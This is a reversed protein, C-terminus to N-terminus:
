RQFSWQVISVPCIPNSGFVHERVDVMDIDTRKKLVDLFDKNYGAQELYRRRLVGLLTKNEPFYLPEFNFVTEIKQRYKALADIFDSSDRVQSIAHHTFIVLPPEAADLFCYSHSDTLDCHYFSSNSSNVFVRQAIEVASPSFDAGCFKKDSFQQRLRDLFYGYGAGLEVVTACRKVADSMAEIMLSFLFDQGAEDSLAFLEDGM